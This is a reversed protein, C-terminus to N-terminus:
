NADEEHFRRGLSLVTEADEKSLNHNLGWTEYSIYNNFYDLYYAKMQERIDPSM